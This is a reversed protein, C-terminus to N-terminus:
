RRRDHQEMMAECAKVRQDLDQLEQTTRGMHYVLLGTQSLLYLVIPLVVSWKVEGNKGM